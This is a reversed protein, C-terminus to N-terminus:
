AVEPTYPGDEIMNPYASPAVGAALSSVFGALYFCSTYIQLKQSDFKCWPSSAKFAHEKKYIDPFFVAEFDKRCLHLALLIECLYIMHVVFM